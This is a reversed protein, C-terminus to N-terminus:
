SVSIRYPNSSSGDGSEIALESNLYLVPRIADGHRTDIWPNVRGHVGVFWSCGSSGSNHNLLWYWSGDRMWDNDRCETSPNEGATYADYDYYMWLTDTCYNFDGAYGYDSAYALAIKGTWSADNGAAVTTGREYEYAKDSYISSSSWGGLNWYTNSIMNRTTDNKIGTNNTAFNITNAKTGSDYYYSTTNLNNYYSGNLLTNLTATTWNNDYTTSQGDDNYDYDWALTGISGEKILKVKGDFVGIIRWKECNTEPYTDCNFYVYNNPSKGYYRVNGALDSMLNHERDYYYKIGNNTVESKESYYYDSILKYALTNKQEEPIETIDPIQGERIIAGEGDAHMKFAFKANQMSNPNAHNIGDIWIYLTYTTQTTTILENSLLVIHNTSNTSCSVLNKEGNEDTSDFYTDTFNGEKVLTDGKYIAFKFSEHKLGVDLTNIDLYLNFMLENTVNSKVKITKVIGEEKTGVPKLAATVEGGADFYVTASGVSTAIKTIDDGETSWVFWAYTGASGIISIILTIVSVIMFIKSKQM